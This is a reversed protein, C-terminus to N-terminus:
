SKRRWFWKKEFTVADVFETLVYDHWDELGNYVAQCREYQTDFDADDLAPNMKVLEALIEKMVWRAM